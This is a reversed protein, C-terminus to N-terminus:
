RWRYYGELALGLSPLDRIRHLMVQGANRLAHLVYAEGGIRCYVGVHSLRGRAFMLVGDGDAPAQTRVAFDEVAQNIQSSLGWVSPARVKPLQLNRGFVNLTVREVLSACDSEGEIYPMGVYNEAWHGM